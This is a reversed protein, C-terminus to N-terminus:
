FGFRLGARLLTFNQDDPAWTYRGDAFIGLTHNFRYDLGAGVHALGRTDSDDYMFGGGAFLYPALCIHDIPFRVVLSGTFIGVADDTAAWSGDVELGVMPTFFYDLALGAGMSDDLNGGGDPLLGVGYISVSATNERFCDCIAPVDIRAPAQPPASSVYQTGAQAAGLMLTSALITLITRNKM